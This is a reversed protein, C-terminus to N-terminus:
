EDSNKKDMKRFLESQKILKEYNGEAEITGNNILVIKDTSILTSLRHAILIITKSGRIRELSNMIKTESIGDLASTAEDLVIVDSDRYLARAIGVRQRQGGSLQIGDDGIFTDLGEPLIKLVEVLDTLELISNLKSEDIQNLSEGLLINEKVTGDILFLNQPVFTIKEQWSLQNDTTIKVGDILLEGSDAVLLGMLIDALTTKGSGSPGAIGVTSNKKININIADLVIKEREPYQYAINKLEIGKSFEIQKISKKSKRINKDKSIIAEEYIIQLDEKINDLHQVRGQISSLAQYIAQFAPILKLGAVVFVSFIPLM